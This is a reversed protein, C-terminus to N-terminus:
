NGKLLCGSLEDLYLYITSQLPLYELTIASLFSISIDKNHNLLPGLHCLMVIGFFIEIMAPVKGNPENKRCRGYGAPVGVIFGSSFCRLNSWM